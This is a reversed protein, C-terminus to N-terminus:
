SADELLKKKAELYGAKVIEVHRCSDGSNHFFGPCSCVWEVYTNKGSKTPRDLRATVHHTFQGSGSPFLMVQGPALYTPMRQEYKGQGNPTVWREIVRRAKSKM